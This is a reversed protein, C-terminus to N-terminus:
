YEGIVQGDAIATLELITNFSINDSMFGVSGDARVYQTGGVHMSGAGWAYPCGSSGGGCGQKNNPHQGFYVGSTYNWANWFPGYGVYNKMFPTEMLMFTNSTGDKIASINCAGNIGMIGKHPVSVTAGTPTTLSLPIPDSDYLPTASYIPFYEMYYVTDPYWYSARYGNTIAYHATGAINLPESYPTDSPCAFVPLRATFLAGQNVSPGSGSRQASGMAISFNLKNYLPQQDINPLVMLSWPTNLCQTACTNTWPLSASAQIGPNVAGPPFKGFTDHYNMLALGLQKLNNKCQSRRAAERAQQVAPLLLSVLVAIIAIVVLLEILTFGFRRRVVPDRMFLADKCFVTPLGPRPAQTSV